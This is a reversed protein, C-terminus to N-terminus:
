RDKKPPKQPVTDLWNSLSGMAERVVSKKIATNEIPFSQKGAEKLWPFRKKLAGLRKRLGQLDELEKAHDDM